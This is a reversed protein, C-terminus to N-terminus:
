TLLQMETKVYFVLLFLISHKDTFHIFYMDSFSVYMHFWSLRFSFIIFSQLIRYSYLTVSLKPNNCFCVKQM